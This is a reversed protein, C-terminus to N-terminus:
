NVETSQLYRHRVVFSIPLDAAFLIVFLVASPGNAMPQSFISYLIWMSIFLLPHIESAIYKAQLTKRM